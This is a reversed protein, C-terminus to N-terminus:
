TTSEDPFRAKWGRHQSQKGQAVRMLSSQNLHHERCFRGIGQVFYETGDPATAIITKMRSAYMAPDRSQNKSAASLKARTAESVAHGLKAQRIKEKTEQRHTKGTRAESVKRRHAESHPKGLHSASMKARSEPTAKAGLRTGPKGLNIERLKARTEPTHKRGLPSGAVRDVNFGKRSFPKVTDLWYQERATLSIPLVLELVEFVFSEKGYKNWANQLIPNHHRGRNLERRHVKWRKWLNIASGIYIKGTAICTIRYIGSTEPIIRM